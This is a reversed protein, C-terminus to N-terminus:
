TGLLGTKEKAASPRQTPGAPTDAALQQAGFGSSLVSPGRLRLTAVASPPGSAWRPVAPAMRWTPPRMM